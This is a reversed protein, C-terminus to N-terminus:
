EVGNVFTLMRYYEEDTTDFVPIASPNILPFDEVIKPRVNKNGQDYTKLIMGNDKIVIYIRRSNGNSDNTAELKICYM